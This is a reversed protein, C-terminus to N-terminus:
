PTLRRVIDELETIVKDGDETLVLAPVSAVGYFAAEAMGEVTNADVLQPWQSADM